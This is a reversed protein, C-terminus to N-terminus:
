TDKQHFKTPRACNLYIHYLFINCSKFVHVKYEQCCIWVCMYMCVYIYSFYYLMCVYLIYMYTIIIYRYIYVTHVNFDHPTKLLQTDMRLFYTRTVININQKQKHPLCYIFLDVGWIFNFVFTVNIFFFFFFIFDFQRNDIQNRLISKRKGRRLIKHEIFVPRMWRRLRMGDEFDARCRM